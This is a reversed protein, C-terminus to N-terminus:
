ESEVEIKENARENFLSENAFAAITHMVILDVAEPSLNRVEAITEAPYDGVEDNVEVVNVKPQDSEHIRDYIRRRAVEVRVASKSRAEASM